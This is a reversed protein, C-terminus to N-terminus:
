ILLQTITSAASRITNSDESSTNLKRGGRFIIEMFSTASQPYVYQKDTLSGDFKYNTKLIDRRIIQAARLLTVADNDDSKDSALLIDKGVHHTFSLIYEHSTKNAVLGQINSLLKEKLRSTHVYNKCNTLENLRDNYM